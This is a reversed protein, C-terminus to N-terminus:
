SFASTAAIPPELFAATTPDKAICIGGYPFFSINSALALKAYVLRLGAGPMNKTKEQKHNISRGSSGSSSSGSSSSNSSSSSSRVYSHACM